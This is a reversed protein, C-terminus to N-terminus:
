RQYESVEVLNGDPDRFYVSMMAGLAGTREVPGLEVAVDCAALHARLESLSRDAVLCFDAAGPTPTKAKPEFTHGVKHVNIKQGGFLLATPQGPADVRRFGLVRQYFACTADLSRVTLVLHDIRAIM